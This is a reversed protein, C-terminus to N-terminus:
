RFVQCLLQQQFYESKQLVEHAQFVTQVSPKEAAKHSKYKSGTHACKSKLVFGSLPHCNLDGDTHNAALKSYHVRGGWEVAGNKVSHM